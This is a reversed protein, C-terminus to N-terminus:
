RGRLRSHNKIEVLGAIVATEHVHLLTHKTFMTTLSLVWSPSNYPLLYLQVCPCAYQLPLLSAFDSLFPTFLLSDGGLPVKNKLPMLSKKRERKHPPFLLTDFGVMTHPNTVISM